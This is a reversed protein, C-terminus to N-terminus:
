FFFGLSFLFFFTSVVSTSYLLVCLCFTWLPKRIRKRAWVNNVELQAGFTNSSVPATSFLQLSFFYFYAGQAILSGFWQLGSTYIIGSWFGVTNPNSFIHVACVHEITNSLKIEQQLWQMSAKEGCVPMCPYRKHTVVLGRSRLLSFHAHHKNWWFTSLSFVALSVCAYMCVCFVPPEHSNSDWWHRLPPLVVGTWTVLSHCSPM